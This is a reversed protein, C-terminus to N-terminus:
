SGEKKKLEYGNVWKDSIKLKIAKLDFWQSLQTAKPVKKYGVKDYVAKLKETLDLLSARDGEHFVIAVEVALADEDFYIIGLKENMKTTNFGCAKMGSEGLGDVYDHFRKDSIQNYIAQKVEDSCKYDIFYILRDKMPRILDFTEFFKEIEENNEVSLRSDNISSFITFRDAYDTQQLDFARQEAVLVYKNLTPVKIIHDSDIFVDDISVYNERYNSAKAAIEYTEMLTDRMSEACDKYINFLDETKKMKSTVHNNFDEQSVINKDLVSRYYFEAEDKWPNSELRQRGMIQPLDLSIDVTLTEINADSLVFTRANTSYFDAGLYVTRTCFTFMKHPEGELPIRGIKYRVRIKKGSANETTYDLRESIRKENDRTKACLINVQDPKLGCKKIVTLISNVSNLYFVAEKSEIMEKSGDERLIFKRDFNGNLYRQVITKAISSTTERKDGFSKVILLPKKVREPDESAWDLSFLLMKEFIDLQRLYKEMMPTASAYCVKNLGFCVNNLGILAKAFKNETTPKFSSDVLLSQFEDVIIQFSDLRSVSDLINKILYFSDYTVMIKAPLGHSHREMVYELVRSKLDSYYKKEEEVTPTKHTSKNTTVKKKKPNKSVDKSIDKDVGSDESATVYFVEDKHQDYKNELLFKRPSCLVIDQNNRICFETFGCGPIQKDIIHPFKQISFEKWDFLYRIGRPVPINYTYDGIKNFKMM